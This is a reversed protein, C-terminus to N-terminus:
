RDGTVSHASGRQQGDAVEDDVKMQGAPDQPRHVPDVQIHV